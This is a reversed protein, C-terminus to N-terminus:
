WPGSPRIRKRRKPREGNDETISRSYREGEEEEAAATAAQERKQVKYFQLLGLFGIGLGVPIPKWVIGTKGLADRLRTTFPKKNQKRTNTASFHRLGPFQQRCLISPRRIATQLSSQSIKEKPNKIVRVLRGGIITSM